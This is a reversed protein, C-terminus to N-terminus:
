KCCLDTTEIFCEVYKMFKKREEETFDSDKMKCESILQSLTVEKNKHFLPSIQKCYEKTWAVDQFTPLIRMAEENSKIKPISSLYKICNRIKEDM